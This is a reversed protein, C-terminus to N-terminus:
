ALHLRLHYPRSSGRPLNSGIGNQRLHQLSISLPPPLLPVFRFGEFHDFLVVFGLSTGCAVIKAHVCLCTPLGWLSRAKDGIVQASLAPLHSFQIVSTSSGQEHSIFGARLPSVMSFNCSERLTKEDDAEVDRISTIRVFGATSSSGAAGSDYALVKSVDIVVNATTTTSPATDDDDSEDLIAQRPFLAHPHPSFFPHAPACPLPPQRPSATDSTPHHPRLCVQLMDDEDMDSPKRESKSPAAAASASSADAAGVPAAAAALAHSLKGRAQAIEAEGPASLVTPISPAAAVDRTTASMVRSGNDEADIDALLADLDIEDSGPTLGADKLICDIDDGDGALLANLDDDVDM